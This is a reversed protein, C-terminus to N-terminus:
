VVTIRGEVHADLDHSDALLEEYVSCCSTCVVRPRRNAAVEVFPVGFFEEFNNYHYDQIAVKVRATDPLDEGNFKFELFRQEARSWVVHLQRSYQYFETHAGTFAEERLVYAVMRKLQAGTVEVMHLSDDYPFFERLDQLHLVPGLKPLRLSGSGLIMLDFSSGDQMIDAFLNGLETEQYRSPHTLERKFTTLVAGYKRDTKEKYSRIVDELILDKECHDSDVPDIFAEFSRLQHNPFFSLEIRGVQDSGTGAQVIPIGNVVEPKELLTHSHGGIILNVGLAADLLEALKRDEDIGIHTLLVTYDTDVTKYTDVIARVEEAAARVDVFSGIVSETKTQALIEDTIIGIFLVKVGGKEIICYPKFLRQHNTKIFINANVIPFRACKEIFLIHALGYDIEHNGLTVVDPSLLNMMEITSVGRYESDIISGKFMDGAVAYLVNQKSERQARLYGSLLPLGGIERKGIKREPLFDGHIDNSHIITLRIDDAM